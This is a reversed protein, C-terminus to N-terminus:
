KKRTRYYLNWAGSNSEVIDPFGDNNLDGIEINYTDDKLDARLGIEIFAGNKQGLYVFNQEESNGEVIDLYGDQNLDAVKISSTMRAAEFDSTRNFSLNKDGYYISNNSGLNGAVIDM